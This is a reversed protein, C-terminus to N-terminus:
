VGGRKKSFSQFLVSNVGGGGIVNVGTDPLAPGGAGPKAEGYAVVVNGSALESGLNINVLRGFDSVSTMAPLTTLKLGGEQGIFRDDFRLVTSPDTVWDERKLIKFYAVADIPDPLPVRTAPVNVQVPLTDMDGFDWVAGDQFVGMIWGDWNTVTTETLTPEVFFTHQEDQYFFKDTYKKGETKLADSITEEEADETLNQVLADLSKVLQTVDGLVVWDYLTLHQTDAILQLIDEFIVKWDSLISEIVTESFNNLRLPLSETFLILRELIDRTSASDAISSLLSKIYNALRRMQDITTYPRTTLLLSFKGGQVAGQIIDKTSLEPTTSMEDKTELREVWTVQLAGSGTYRTPGHVTVNYPPSQSTLGVSPEPPSNKSVVRFAQRIPSGLNILLSRDENQSVFIFVRRSDFDNSVDVKIPNGFGGSERATWQGQFYECWNLQIEVEKKLAQSVTQEAVDRIPTDANADQKAKELFTVWFLHLRERWIVAVVHDGEIEASVPEWPTWMQHAFRRYFYKHPQNYTRGVVHLINSSPDPKEECMTVIDLRALVELKKLYNFFADEVLDNSVDGELLASELEQFLHTKDDRFEPELWNEPFLFIKRNAEWVRYRKMWQWHQSNIASPHVRKKELNLLIRQIFLQVSSIALRLRSTQVIPEMGPDVLFYEFLQEIREFCEKHMIYAVLADRKRQRLKDFISQAIRQWNEPEYRANVTNRLDGAISFDAAPVAWRIIKGVPVGLKEVVQLAEWLRKLKEVKAMDAVDVRYGNGSLPAANIAFYLSEATARVIAVDRRTLQALPELHAAKAEEIDNIDLYTRCTNELISILDDTGASLDRKLHNYDALLLFQTFLIAPSTATNDNECTPFRSLDINDFDARHILIYRVERESLSLGQILQIAKALVVYARLFREVVAQPYLTLQSLRDKPLNEGQVLLSVDGNNLNRADLSFRYPVGPKLEVFRSIEDADKTAKHNILAEPLHSLRFEAEADKKGFVLFFRYAGAVPVLLYGDFQARKAGAPKIPTVGIKPATDATEITKTQGLPADGADFFLVEVGLEGSAAFADLLLKGPQGPDAVLPESPQAPDFPIKRGALLLETLAPDANVNAALTQIIYQRILRQKVFPLIAALIKHRKAEESLSAAAPGYLDDYTLFGEFHKDFFEKPQPQSEIAIRDLLKVFINYADVKGQIVLRDGADPPTTWTGTFTILTKGAGGSGAAGISLITKTETHFASASIDYYTVVDGVKFIVADDDPLPVTSDTVNTPSEVPARAYPTPVKGLIDTKKNNTLVGVHIVHQLKRIDDYSVRIGAMQYIIPDLKQNKEVQEETASFEVTDKWFGFFKNVVDAPLVLALKQRLFDDTTDEADPLTHEAQIRRIEAAVVKFLALTADTNPRYQGVPDFCHCLLFNFADVSFGSEKAKEVVEIFKLTQEFPYDQVISTIPAPELSRFPDLGSLGKLTILDRVPLKLAKALLGYRYLLSVTALTLPETDLNKQNDKLIQEIEEATLNLAAQVALLHSKLSVNGTAANEPQAANWRFPEYQGSVANFYCLYEGTLNDFVADNKLISRVLFLQSYLSNKGTISLNSWLTLLKLRSNKGVKMREDLAKLHAMYVLATQLATGLNQITLPRSNSPVFVALARDTEEITWGLKKRLRVFLNVKLLVVILNVKQVAKEANSTGPVAFGLKTQDFNPSTSQDRLVLTKKFTGDTWFKTLETLTSGPQLNHETDYSNLCDTITQRDTQTLQNSFYAAVDRVNLRLKWLIALKDLEPNVFSTQVIETLEKHSVGLRRSLVKASNLDSRRGETDPPQNIAEDETTYGYLNFWNSHMGSSTFIDYEAPSIDLYETFISARHYNRDTRVLHDNVAPPVTWVGSFTILTKGTGGSGAAGVSAIAKTESHLTNASVDYYTVVDGAKFKAADADAVQVTANTTNTPNEIAPKPPLTFLEDTLRFTELVRWLPTEFHDFFRRVTELWLDFPLALPYCAKKFEDYAKPLINQPQVLLEPTTADSTDYGRYDKITNYAVYYELIENVIDIYPLATNTNECTLPLHAMDPRREILAYYPKKREDEYNEGTHDYNWDKTYRDNRHKKKWDDLFNKWVQDDPDLLKLLDVLYAAPSLVSRCHECECFDLSGFLTEMTPYRDILESVFEKKASERIDGPPSVVDISPANEMLKATTFISYIVSGVQQAKRYVLEAEQLSSFSPGFSDLFKEKSFGVVDYASTFGLDLMTKLAENSPTIQYLRQLKKVSKTTAKIKNKPANPFLRKLNHRIFSDVPVRGLEFGLEGAKNLFNVVANKNHGAGLSLEGNNIMQGVVRTPFSLRVKRALEAAYADLKDTTKDGEFAPPIIKRLAKREKRATTRLYDKWVEEKYLGLEVLKFLSDPTVIDQQLNKALNANNLTLYALKGQLRLPKLQEDLFGNDKAKQWLESPAGRHAFYLDEFKRKNSESLGSNNLLEAFSSLTGPAKMERLTQHSFSEFAQKAKKISFDSGVIGAKQAKNLAKEVTLSSVRALIRKETPLGVRFLAYLADQQICTDASLRAATTLLAILRADWGTAQHLLSLDPQSDKEQAKALKKIDGLQKKLDATLRSYEADLPRVSAPAILNLVEKEGPKYKTESLPIEKGKPDVIRVELNAAGGGPDYSVSYSGEDSTKGQGLMTVMGGFGRSYARVAIGGAPIGYESFIKGEVSYKAGKKEGAPVKGLAFGTAEDVIGTANLNSKKQFDLVANRTARGFYNTKKEDSPIRYGLGVLEAHLLRVDEGKM